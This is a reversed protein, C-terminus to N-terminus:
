SGTKVAASTGLVNGAKDLAQAAIWTANTTLTITTEFGSRPTPAGLPATDTEGAGGVLQWTVVETAGNWSVYATVGDNAATELAIVPPEAPQGSWEFRFARYSERGEPMSLDLLLTGDGAFESARPKDGWGFMLNGNPLVQMSGQSGSSIKDPHMIERALGASMGDMDLDLFIGRSQEHVTPAAGNDFISIQGDPQRRVHHQWAFEVGKGLHFDSKKGGLRWIVEGSFRDVKYAAWTNRASILLQDDEDLAISNLHFFVFAPVDPDDSGAKTHAESLDIHDLAHWEFIVADTALDIEQVICDIVFDDRKGGFKRLDRAITNYTGVIATNADTLAIDHLDGGAYGNKIQITAVRSYTNDYLVWHGFGHGRVVDGQWWILHPKGAYDIVKLDFTQEIPVEVPFFWVPEGTNDVILSGQRGPGRKPSLFVYGPALGKGEAKAAIATPALGPRSHFARVEDADPKSARTPEASLPRGVACTFSFNGDRAGSIGLRTDVSVTEGEQFAFDPYWSVGNGDSHAVEAGPHVGSQEGTVEVPGLTTLGPARFTIQTRASATESNPRPFVLVRPAIAVAPAIPSAQASGVPSAVPSGVPTAVPTASNQALVSSAGALGTAAVGGVLARRSLGRREAHSEHDTGHEPM